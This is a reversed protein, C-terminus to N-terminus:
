VCLKSLSTNCMQQCGQAVLTRVIERDNGGGTTLLFSGTTSHKVAGFAKNNAFSDDGETQKTFVAERVPIVDGNGMFVKTNSFEASRQLSHGECNNQRDWDEVFSYFRDFPHNGSREFAAMFLWDSGEISYWCACRWVTLQEATDYRVGCVRFTVPQHLQWPVAKLAKM